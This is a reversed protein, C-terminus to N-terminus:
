LQGVWLRQNERFALDVADFGPIFQARVWAVIDAETEIGVVRKETDNSRDYTQVISKLENALVVAKMIQRDRNVGFSKARVLLNKIYDATSGASADRSARNLGLQRKIDGIVKAESIKNQRLQEEARYELFLGEYSKGSALQSTYRFDLLEHMLLADLDALDSVADFKNEHLYKTKQADYFIAEQAGQVEITSGTPQTVKTLVIMPAPPLGAATAVAEQAEMERQITEATKKRGSGPGGM